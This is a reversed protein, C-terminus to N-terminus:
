YRGNIRTTVFWKLKKIPQLFLLKETLLGCPVSSQSSTYLCQLGLLFADRHVPSTACLRLTSAIVCIFHSVTEQYHLPLVFSGVIASRGCQHLIFTRQDEGRLHQLYLSISSM